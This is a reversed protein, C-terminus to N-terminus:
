VQVRIQGTLLKQMLGKKLSEASKKKLELKSIEDDVSSLISVIKQQEDLSPLPIKLKRFGILNIHGVTSGVTDSKLKNQVENDRLLYLLFKSNLLKPNPQLDIISEYISFEQNSDVIACVGLSGSKTVLVDGYKPKHNRTLFVHQDKSIFRAKDFSLKGDSINNARILPIGESEVYDVKSTLGLFIDSCIDFIGILKWEEPIEIEQSRVGLNVTKFKKHDIGRTLLTQMLGTKLKKTTQITKEYSEILNDVNSLISAIKQQELLTPMFFQFNSVQNLSLNPQAGVTELRRIQKKIFVSRLFFFLYFLNCKKNKLRIISIAQNTNCPTQDKKILGVRGLTGAISFLIDNEILQSRLLKKHTQSDILHCNNIQINGVSDINEVKIFPIGKEVFKSGETTPTTGKTIHESIDQVIISEWEEPIEIEKGFLSKVLKYGPKAKQM